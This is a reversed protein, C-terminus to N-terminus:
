PANRSNLPHLFIDSVSPSARGLETVGEADEAARPKDEAFMRVINEVM